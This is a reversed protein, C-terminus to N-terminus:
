EGAQSLIADKNESIERKLEDITAAVIEKYNPRNISLWKLSAYESFLVDQSIKGQNAAAMQQFAPDSQYEPVNARLWTYVDDMKREIFSEFQGFQEETLGESLRTGVRVELQERFHALFAKKQEEPLGGLGIENLFQENLQFM